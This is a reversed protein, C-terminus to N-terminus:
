AYSYYHDSRLTESGALGVVFGRISVRYGEYGHLTVHKLRYVTGEKGLGTMTSWEERNVLLWM